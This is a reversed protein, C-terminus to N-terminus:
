CSEEHSIGKEIIENAMSSLERFINALKEQPLVMEPDPVTNIDLTLHCALEQIGPFRQMVSDQGVFLQNRVWYFAAMSWRSLRNIRLDAVGSVSNRSRNIQYIFDSSNKTPIKFPLYSSLQRYGEHLDSVPLLLVAGFALRNISPCSACQLWRLILDIFPDVSATFSDLKPIEGPESNEKDVLYRWDVRNVQDDLVLKGAGFSGKDIQARERPKQSRNEPLQEFLEEWWNQGERQPIPPLFATVRLSEAQWDSISVRELVDQDQIEM